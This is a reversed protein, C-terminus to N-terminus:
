VYGLKRSIKIVKRLRARYKKPHHLWFNAMDRVYDESHTQARCKQCTWAVTGPPSVFLSKASAKGNELVLLECHPCLAQLQKERVKRRHEMWRNIDFKVAIAGTGVTLMATLTWLVWELIDGNIEM